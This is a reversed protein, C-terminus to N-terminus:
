DMLECSNNFSILVESEYSLIGLPYLNKMLELSEVHRIDEHLSPDSISLVMM